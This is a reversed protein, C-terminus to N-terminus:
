SNVLRKKKAPKKRLDYGLDRAMERLLRLKFEPDKEHAGSGDYTEHMLVADNGGIAFVRAENMHHSTIVKFYNAYGGHGFTNQKESRRYGLIENRAKEWFGSPDADIASLADNLILIASNYGM